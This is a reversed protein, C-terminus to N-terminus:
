RSIEYLSAFLDGMGLIFFQDFISRFDLIEHLFFLTFHITCFCSRSAIAM